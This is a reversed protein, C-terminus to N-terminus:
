FLEPFTERLPERIAEIARARHSIRNKAAAPLQAITKGYEPLVFVPDYGFGGDGAAAFNIYGRCVGEAECSRGDPAVVALCCRFQAGREEPASCERLESLLLQCRGADDLDPGGYRASRVGPLGGLTDVELGSDDALAITGATAAFARAKLMANDRFSDGCEEISLEFGLQAPSQTDIPALLSRFERLKGPNSTAVLLSTM